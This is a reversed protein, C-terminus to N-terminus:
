IHQLDLFLMEKHAFYVDYNQAIVQKLM